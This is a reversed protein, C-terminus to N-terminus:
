VRPTSVDDFAALGRRKEFNNLPKSGYKLGRTLIYKEQRSLYQRVSYMGTCPYAPYALNCLQETEALHLGRAATAPHAAPRDVQTLELTKLNAKRM